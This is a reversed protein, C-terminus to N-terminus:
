HLESQAQDLLCRATPLHPWVRVLLRCVDSDSVRISKTTVASRAGLLCHQFSAPRRQTLLAVQGLPWDLQQIGWRFVPQEKDGLRKGTQGQDWSIGKPYDKTTVM